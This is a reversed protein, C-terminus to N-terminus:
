LFDKQIKELEKIFHNPLTLILAKFILKLLITPKSIFNKEEITLNRLKWLKLVLHINTIIDYFNEGREAENYENYIYLFHNGLKMSRKHCVAVKVINLVGLGEM